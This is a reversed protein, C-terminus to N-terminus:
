SQAGQKIRGDHMGDGQEAAIESLAVARERRDQLAYCFRIGLLYVKTPFVPLLLKGRILDASKNPDEVLRLVGRLRRPTELFTEFLKGNGLFDVACDGM